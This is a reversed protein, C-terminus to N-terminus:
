NFIHTSLEIYSFSFPKQPAKGRGLSTMKYVTITKCLVCWIFTAHKTLSPFATLISLWWLISQKRSELINKVKKNAVTKSQFSCSRWSMALSLSGWPFIILTKKGKNQNVFNWKTEICLAYLSSSLFVM